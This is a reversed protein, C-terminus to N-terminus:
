VPNGRVQELLDALKGLKRSGIDKMEGRIRERVAATAAEIVQTRRQPGSDVVSVPISLGPHM